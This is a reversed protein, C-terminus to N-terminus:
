NAKAEEQSLLKNMFKRYRYSPVYNAKLDDRSIGSISKRDDIIIYDKPKLRITKGSFDKFTLNEFVEIVTYTPSTNLIYTNNKTKTYYIKLFTTGIEVIEDNQNKTIAMPYPTGKKMELITLVEVKKYKKAREINDSIYNKLDLYKVM